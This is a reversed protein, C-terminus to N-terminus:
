GMERLRRKLATLASVIHGQASPQRGETLPEPRSAQELLKIRDRLDQRPDTM